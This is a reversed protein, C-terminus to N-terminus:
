YLRIFEIRNNHQHGQQPNVTRSAGYAKLLLRKEQIEYRSILFNRVAEARQRSLGLNNQPSRGEDAHGALLVVSDRLEERLVWGYSHLLPYSDPELTASGTRFAIFETTKPLGALLEDNHLMEEFNQFVGKTSLSDVNLADMIQRETYSLASAVQTSEDFLDNETDIRVEPMVAAARATEFLTKFKKQVIRLRMPNNNLQAVLMEQYREELEANQRRFGLFYISRLGTQAVLEFSKDKGPIDYRKGPTVPNVNEPNLGTFSSMPFLQQVGGSSGVQFIYVYCREQPTFFIKYVDGERLVSRDTLSSIKGGSERCYVYSVSFNLGEPMVITEPRVNAANWPDAGANGISLFLACIEVIIIIRKM